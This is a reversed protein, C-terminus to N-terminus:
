ESEEQEILFRAKFGDRGLLELGSDTLEATEAAFRSAQIMTGSESACLTFFLRSDGKWVQVTGHVTVEDTRANFRREKEVPGGDDVRYWGQEGRSSIAEADEATIRLDSPLNSVLALNDLDSKITEYYGRSIIRDDMLVFALCGYLLCMLASEIAMTTMGAYEMGGMKLGYDMMVVAYIMVFFVLSATYIMRRYGRARGNIFMYGTYVMSGGIFLMGCGIFFVYVNENFFLPLGKILRSVGLGLAYIAVNNMVTKVPNLLMLVGFIILVAQSILNFAGSTGWGIWLMYAGLAIMLAGLLITWRHKVMDLLKALGAAGEEM